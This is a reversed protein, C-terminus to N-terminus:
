AAKIAAVLEREKEPPASMYGASVRDFVDGFRGKLGAAIESPKDAVVAFTDVIETGRIQMM